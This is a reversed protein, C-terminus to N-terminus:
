LTIFLTMIDWSCSRQSIHTHGSKGIEKGINRPKETEPKIDDFATSKLIGESKRTFYFHIVSILNYGFPIGRIISKSISISWVEETFEQLQGYIRKILAFIESGLLFQNNLRQKDLLVSSTTEIVCVYIRLPIVALWSTPYRSHCLLSIFDEGQTFSTLPAIGFRCNIEFHM